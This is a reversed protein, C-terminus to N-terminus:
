LLLGQVPRPARGALGTAVISMLAWLAAATTIAVLWFPITGAVQLAIRGTALLAVGLLVSRREGIAERFASGRISGLAPIGVAVAAATAYGADEFGDFVLPFFVRLVQLSVACVVALLAVGVSSSHPFRRSVTM